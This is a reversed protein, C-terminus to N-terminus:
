LNKYDKQYTLFLSTLNQNVSLKLLAFKILKKSYHETRERSTYSTLSNPHQPDQHQFTTKYCNKITSLITPYPIYNEIERGRTIWCLNSNELGNINEEIKNKIKTKTSNITDSDSQMDSDIIFALNRNLAKVAIM